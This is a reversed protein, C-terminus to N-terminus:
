RNGLREWTVIRRNMDILAHRGEVIGDRVMFENNELPQIELYDYFDAIKLLQDDAMGKLIWRIIEGSECASGILIGERLAVLERRLIRPTRYFNNLYSNSILQYLNALGKQSAALLIVHYPRDQLPEDM